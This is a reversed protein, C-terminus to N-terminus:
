EVGNLYEEITMQTIEYFEDDTLKKNGKLTTFSYVQDITYNGAEYARKVIKYYKSHTM